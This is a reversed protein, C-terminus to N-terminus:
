VHDHVDVDFVWDGVLFVRGSNGGDNALVASFDEHAAALEDHELSLAMWVAQDHHAKWVDGRRLREVVIRFILGEDGDSLAHGLHVHDNDFSYLDYRVEAAKGLACNIKRRKECRSRLANLYTLYM